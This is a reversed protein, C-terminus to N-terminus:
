GKCAFFKAMEKYLLVTLGNTFCNPDLSEIDNIKVRSNSRYANQESIARIKLYTLIQQIDNYSIKNKKMINNLRSNFHKYMEELSHFGQWKILNETSALLFADKSNGKYSQDFESFIKTAIDPTREMIVRGDNKFTHFVSHTLEHLFENKLDNKNKLSEERIYITSIGNKYNVTLAQSNLLLYVATNDGIDKAIDNHNKVIIKGISQKPNTSNIIEQLKELTITGSDALQEFSKKVSNIMSWIQKNSLTENPLLYNIGLPKYCEHLKQARYMAAKPNKLGFSTAYSNQQKSILM